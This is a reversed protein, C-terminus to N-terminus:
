RAGPPTAPTVTLWDLTCNAHLTAPLPARATAVPLREIRCARTLVLAGREAQLTGLLAPLEAEHLLALELSLTSAQLQPAAADTPRLLPRPPSFRTQPSRSAHARRVADLWLEPQASGVLGRAQLAQYRALAPRLRADLARAAELEAHARQFQSRAQGLRTGASSLTAASQWLALGGLALGGLGILLPLRLRQPPSRLAQLLAAAKM